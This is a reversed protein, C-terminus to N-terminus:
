RMADYILIQKATNSLHDDGRIVHTITQHADDSAVAFNYTPSGDSRLIVLDEIDANDFKMQGHVLDEWVTQGEPVKFRIAYPEGALAM